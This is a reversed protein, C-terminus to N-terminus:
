DVWDNCQNVHGLCRTANATSSLLFLFTVKQACKREYFLLDLFATSLLWVLTNNNNHSFAKALFLCFGFGKEEPRFLPQQTTKFQKLTTATFWHSSGAPQTRLVTFMSVCFSAVSQLCVFGRALWLPLKQSVCLPRCLFRTQRWNLRQLIHSTATGMAKDALITTAIATLDLANRSPHDPTTNSLGRRTATMTHYLTQYDIGLHTFHRSFILGLRNQSRKWSATIILIKVSHSLPDNM